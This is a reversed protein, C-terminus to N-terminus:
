DVQTRSLSLSLSLLFLLMTLHIVTLLTRKVMRGNQVRHNVGTYNNATSMFSVCSAAFSVSLLTFEVESGPSNLEFSLQTERESYTFALTYKHTTCKKRKKKKEKNKHRKHATADTWRMESHIHISMNDSSLHAM